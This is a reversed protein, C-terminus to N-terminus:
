KFQIFYVIILARLIKYKLFHGGMGGKFNLEISINIIIDAIIIM